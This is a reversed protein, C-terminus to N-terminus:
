IYGQPVSTLDLLEIAKVENRHAPVIFQAVCSLHCIFNQSDM